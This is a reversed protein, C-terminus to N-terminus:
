DADELEVVELTLGLKGDKLTVDVEEVDGSDDSIFVIVIQWKVDKLAKKVDALSQVRVGNISLITDDIDLGAEMAPGGDLLDVILLGFDGDVEPDDAMVKKSDGSLTNTAMPDFSTNGFVLGATFALQLMGAVVFLFIRKM